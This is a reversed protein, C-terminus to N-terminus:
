TIWIPAADFKIIHQRGTALAHTSINAKPLQMLVDMDAPWGSPPFPSAERPTLVQVQAIQAQQLALGM